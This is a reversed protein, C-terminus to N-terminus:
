LFATSTITSVLLAGAGDLIRFHGTFIAILVNSYDGHPECFKAPM